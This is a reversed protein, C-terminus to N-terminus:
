LCGLIATHFHQYPGSVMPLRPLGPRSWCFGEPCWRFGLGAASEVLLHLPGHGPAGNSILDLLRSIRDMELPRYALFRRLMRFRFWVICTVPDVCEPGDLMGLVTGSHALTLKSSWCARVFAARLKLVNSQSLLSAEIGHLAAPIYMTRLIRLKGRYDLPLASVVWVVRLVALVRAALTRGWARYTSDLHGGLDRIDLKVSWREGEGSIVWAKMDRRVAASTSLLVCKSPAPEQGVLRVYGSTFRAARLLQEPSSSVCKLNDAYLQPTVDPLEGLYKCWPLYLAVIFMMSLPCGQPIGGDRTWPEGLGAALKFRLRVHAHYEFYVHRFWAPLGLSSLVRDLIGRDVTDFSKVVDAVLLHVDQDMGGALCEEIDLATTFWADVSSRGGGASFVSDPVWSRFWPELQIMRASAWIRYVVPLVCLPRQGLPTADGDTKPIMAIYADLLGDPWVGEEEVLRLIRALGDFWPAPLAKLERWGWGDLSGATAKKRKVVEFLMDGTLPPLHFVDLVPLWGGEVENSFDELDAAGRGARCFYPMWAERFKADILAPDALIGSGGPTDKPDCQLFPSPPVLDPKLWQYPRVLPDELLWTKWGQVARDKRNRVVAQLFKDLDLHLAAVLVEMDALGSSSARDLAEATVTGMPGSVLIADWQRTLELGRSVSFGSRRIAGLVDLVARLRRRLDVLPATSADRYLDVQAGDGPDSCRARAKRVKPGGLRVKNFRAVGRGIHFGREPVPGGALCFAAVLANEAASSWIQWAQSVDGVHLANDLCLTDGAPIFALREDYVEWVRRVEASRSSRSRDVAQVWCAPWVPTYRFPQTVRATWRCADFWSRVAFHPQLWRDGCVGCSLVAAACLPCGIQFDRRNGSDSDWTRKCTIGPERGSAVAWSAELDVWLGFSIGKALCPIKMPEVNFDGVILCPQGRAVVALEGLAAEFLQDTLRLCEADSDAGHYGYLVVLHMFRGLGLPLLCRVARGLAFFRAFGATALTPLSLPAGRLSVVGVGANGVLSFEQSAPSWISGIGKGRLRKGESRARAPVLRHEVVALFDM